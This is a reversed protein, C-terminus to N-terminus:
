KVVRDFVDYTDVYEIGPVDVGNETRENIAGVALRFQLLELHGTALIHEKFKEHDAVTPIQNTTLGTMRGGILMGELKQQRFAELMFSKYQDEQDKLRKAVKEAALRQERLDRWKLIAKEVEKRDAKAPDIWASASVEDNEAM